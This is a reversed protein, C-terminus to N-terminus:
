SKDNRMYEFNAVLFIWIPQLLVKPVWNPLGIPSGIQTGRFKIFILNKFFIKPYGREKIVSTASFCIKADMFFRMKAFDTNQNKYQKEAENWTAM